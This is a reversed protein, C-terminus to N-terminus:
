WALNFLFAPRNFASAIMSDAFLACGLAGIAIAFVAATRDDREKAQAQQEENWSAATVDRRRQLRSVAFGVVAAFPLVVLWFYANLSLLNNQMGRFTGIVNQAVEVFGRPGSQMLVGICILAIFANTLASGIRTLTPTRM